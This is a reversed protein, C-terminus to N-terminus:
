HTVTVVRELSSHSQKRNTPGVAHTFRKTVRKWRVYLSVVFISLILVIALLAAILMDTKDLYQPSIDTFIGPRKVNVRQDNELILSQIEEPRPKKKMYIPGISVITEEANANSVSRRNIEHVDLPNVNDCRMTEKTPCTEHELFCVKVQAHLYSLEYDGFQFLSTSFTSVSSDGNSYLKIEMEEMAELSPCRHDVIPLNIPSHYPSPIPTAWAKEIIINVGEDADVLEVGVYVNEEMELTPNSNLKVDFLEDEYLFMKAKYSGIGSVDSEVVVTEQIEFDADHSTSVFVNLPWSCGFPMSLTRYQTSGIIIEGPEINRELSNSYVLHTSNIKTTTGCDFKNETLSEVRKTCWRWFGEDSQEEFQLEAGKCTNDNLHLKERQKIGHKTLFDNGVDLCIENLECTIRM